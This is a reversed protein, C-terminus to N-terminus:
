AFQCAPHDRVLFFQHQLTCLFPQQEGSGDTAASYSQLAPKSFQTFPQDMFLFLHHQSLCPFPHGPLPELLMDPSRAVAVARACLVAMIAGGDGILGIARPSCIGESWKHQARTRGADINMTLTNSTIKPM